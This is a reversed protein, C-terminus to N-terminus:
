HSMGRRTGILIRKGFPVLDSITGGGNGTFPIKRVALTRKDVRFLGSFYTGVLMDKPRELVCTIEHRFNPVVSFTKREFDYFRLTGEIGGWGWLRRDDIEFDNCSAIGESGPLLSAQTEGKALSWVGEQSLLLARGKWEDNWLVTAEKSPGSIPKPPVGGDEYLFLGNKEDRVLMADGFEVIGTLKGTMGPVPRAAKHFSELRWLGRNTTLYTRRFGTEFDTVEAGKPLGPVPTAKDWVRWLRGDSSWVLLGGGPELGVRHSLLNDGSPSTFPLGKVRVLRKGTVDMWWLANETWLYARNGSVTIGEVQDRLRGFPRAKAAGEDLVCVGYREQVPAAVLCLFAALM